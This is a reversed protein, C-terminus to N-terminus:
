NLWDFHVVSGIPYHTIDTTHHVHQILILWTNDINNVVKLKVCKFKIGSGPVHNSEKPGSHYCFPLSHKDGTEM